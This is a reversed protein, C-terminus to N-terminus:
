REGKVIQGLLIVLLEYGIASLIMFLVVAWLHGQSVAYSLLGTLLLRLIVPWKTMPKDYHFASYVLILDRKWPTVPDVV